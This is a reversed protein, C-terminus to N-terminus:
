ELNIKMGLKMRLYYIFAGLLTFSVSFLFIFFSAVKNPRTLTTDIIGDKRVIKIGEIYWCGEENITSPSYVGNIKSTMHTECKSAGGYVEKCANSVKNQNQRQNNEGDGNGNGQNQNRDRENCAVCDSRVMSYDSFPLEYGGTLEKYTTRGANKDAFNTCTDDTFVGLYIKGGQDACYSGIYYQPEYYDDGDGDEEDKLRRRNNGSVEFQSCEKFYKEFDRLDNRYLHSGSADDDYYPNDEICHAWKKAKSYCKYECIERTYADDFAGDDDSMCNCHKYMYNQCEYEDQKRQAEVYASVYTDIDVVYDGYGKSCGTGSRKSCYMSPCLRFRVLRSTMIRVDEDADANFNWNKINHCGQFKLSYNNMWYYSQGEDIRRASSLLSKGLESETTIEMFAAVHSLFAGASILCITHLRM